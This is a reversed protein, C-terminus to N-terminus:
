LTDQREVRVVMEPAPNLLLVGRAYPALKGETTSLVRWGSPIRLSGRWAWPLGSFEFEGEADTSSWLVVRNRSPVGLM